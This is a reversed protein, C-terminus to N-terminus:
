HTRRWYLKAATPGPHHRLIRRAEERVIKPVKLKSRRYTFNPGEGERVFGSSLELLFLCAYGIARAEESPISVEGDGGAVGDM